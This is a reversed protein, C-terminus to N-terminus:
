PSMVYCPPAPACKGKECYLTRCNDDSDCSDGNLREGACVNNVCHGSQCWEDERCYAGLPQLEACTWNDLGPLDDDWEVCFSGEVCIGAGLPCDAGLPIRRTCTKPANFSCYLGPECTPVYSENCSEGEKGTLYLEGYSKCTDSLYDCFLPAVCQYPSDCADGEGPQPTRYETDVECTHPCQDGGTCETGAVCQLGNSCTEGAQLEAKFTLPACGNGAIIDLLDGCSKAKDILAVCASAARPDFKVGGQAIRAELNSLAQKQCEEQTLMSPPRSCEVGFRCSAEAWRTLFHKADLPENSMKESSASASEAQDASCGGLGLNVGLIVFVHATLRNAVKLFQAGMAVIFRM